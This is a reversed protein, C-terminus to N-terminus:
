DDAHGRRLYRFFVMPAVFLTLTTSVFLGGIIAVAMSSQTTRRSLDLAVPLMSLITASTTITVARLRESTGRYISILRVGEGRNESRKRYNSYLIVSNNVAVGFLVIIGLISDFNISKGTVFLAGFIGSMSLPLSLLLVFPLSFSEFQAGLTLYLLLLVLAFTALMPSMSEALASEELSRLDPDGSLANAAARAAAAGSAGSKSVLVEVADRRDVRMLAPRERVIESKALKCLPQMAGSAGRVVIADVDDPSERQSARLMVRLDIERGGSDIKTPYSGDVAGKIALAVSCLDLGSQALAQRDPTLRLESKLGSPSLSSSSDPAALAINDRLAAARKEADAQDKGSALLEIRDKRAGLLRSATNEPLKVITKMGEAALVLRVDEALAFASKRPRPKLIAKIHVIERSELPSAQYYADDDEGGCIAYAHEVGPLRAARRSADVATAAVYAMASGEPLTITADVEGSDVDPLFEFPLLKFCLAGVATLALISAVLVGPRRFFFRTISRFRREFREFGRFVSRGAREKRSAFLFLTPVLTISTLFSVIQSFIVALSLDAFLAGIAGPLLLVPMFVVISTLTSGVNSSSLEHTYAAVADPDVQRGELAFRRQLNEVVVVSHDVMMGLGMALGGLSMANATRGSLKLLLLAAILSIPISSIMVLSIRVDRMFLLLLMFAIAAGVAVAVALDNIADSVFKSADREVVLDLDKGYSDRINELESSVSRSM